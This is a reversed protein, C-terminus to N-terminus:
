TNLSEVVEDPLKNYSNKVGLFYKRINSALKGSKLRKIIWLPGASCVKM